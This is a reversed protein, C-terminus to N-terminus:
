VEVIHPNKKHVIYMVSYNLVNAIVAKFAYMEIFHTLLFFLFVKLVLMNTIHHVKIVSM